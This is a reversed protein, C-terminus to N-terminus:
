NKIRAIIDGARGWGSISYQQIIGLITNINWYIALGIPFQFAAYGILLPMMFVMQSQMASTMDEEKEKEKVEVSSDTKYHRVGKPSMMLSQLLTLVATLVPIILVAAGASAFQSPKTALNLGLFNLDPMNNLHWSKSYLFYNIKELGKAGDFFAFVVQYFPIILIIPILSPLCGAAPNVGHQQLLKAKAQNFAMSNGKHKEKLEDLQPKLRATVEATKSMNKLQSTRFPWTVLTVIVTSIILSFGFAGPIHISELIRLIFIMLNILPQILLLNFIAGIDM